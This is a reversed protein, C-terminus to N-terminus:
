KENSSEEKEPSNEEKEPSSEEKEPSSEEEETDEADEEEEKEEKEDGAFEELDAVDFVPVDVAPNKAKKGERLRKIKMKAGTCILDVGMSSLPKEVVNESQYILEWDGTDITPKKKTSSEQYDVIVKVTDTM